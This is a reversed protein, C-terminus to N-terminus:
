NIHFYQYDKNGNKDYSYVGFKEQLEQFKDDHGYYSYNMICYIHILEHQIIKRLLTLDDQYINNILINMYHRSIGSVYKDDDISNSKSSTLRSVSSKYGFQTTIYSNMYWDTPWTTNSDIIDYGTYMGSIVVQGLINDPLEQFAISSTLEMNFMDLFLLNQLNKLKKNDM